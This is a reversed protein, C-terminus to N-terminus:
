LLAQMVGDLVGGLVIGGLVAAFLVLKGKAGYRDFDSIPRAVGTIAQAAALGLTAGGLVFGFTMPSLSEAGVRRAVAPWFFGLVLLVTGVVGFRLASHRADDEGPASMPPPAVSEFAPPDSSPSGPKPPRSSTSEGVPM